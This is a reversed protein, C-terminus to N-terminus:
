RKSPGTLAGGCLRVVKSAKGIRPDWEDPLFIVVLESVAISTSAAITSNSPCGVKDILSTHLIV